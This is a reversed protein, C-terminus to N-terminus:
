GNGSQSYQVSDPMRTFTISVTTFMPVMDQTFANHTYQLGTLRGTYRMGGGLSLMMPLGVVVGLDATSGRLQTVWPRGLATRFLFELDYGTGRKLIGQLDEQPLERGAYLSRWSKVQKNGTKKLLSMDEIRNLYLNFSVSAGEAAVPYAKDKGSLLLAPDLGDVPTTGFGIETPNYHFRFGYEIKPDLVSADADWSDTKKPRGKKDYQTDVSDAGGTIKWENENIIYQRILGKRMRRQFNTGSGLIDNRSTPETADFAGDVNVGVYAGTATSILPPNTRLKRKKPPSFGVDAPEETTEDGAAGDSTTSETTAPPQSPSTEPRPDSPSSTTTGWYPTGGPGRGPTGTTSRTRPRWGFDEPSTQNAIEQGDPLPTPQRASLGTGLNWDSPGTTMRYLHVAHNLPYQSGGIVIYNLYRGFKPHNLVNDQKEKTAGSIPTPKSGRTGLTVKTTWYVFEYYFPNFGTGRDGFYEVLLVDYFLEYFDRSGAPREVTFRVNPLLGSAVLNKYKNDFNTPYDANPLYNTM